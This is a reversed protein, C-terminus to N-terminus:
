KRKLSLIAEKLLEAVVMGYAIQPFPLPNYEVIDLGIIKLPVFNQLSERLEEYSVGGPEPTTVAPMLSCDLVDIDITLYAPRDGIERRIEEIYELVRFKYLHEAFNLEEKTISRVGLQFVNERGIVESVRRMVTAHCYREKLYEDRMDAHADLQVVALHSYIKKAAKIIPLTITHEGGLFISFKGDKLIQFAEEEMKELPSMPSEFTFEIDGLDCIKISELDRNQYLSYSEINESARRIYEPGFRTGPLFSSTRDLPCGLVVVEADEYSSNAYWLKM